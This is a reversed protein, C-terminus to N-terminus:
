VYTFTRGTAGEVMNKLGLLSDLREWQCVAGTNHSKTVVIDSDENDVEMTFSGTLVNGAWFHYNARHNM